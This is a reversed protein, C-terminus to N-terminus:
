VITGVPLKCTVTIRSLGLIFFVSAGSYLTRAPGRMDWRRNGNEDRECEENWM